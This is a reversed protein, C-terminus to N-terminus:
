FKNSLVVKETFVVGKEDVAKLVYNGSSLTSPLDISQTGSGGAHQLKTQMVVSGQTNVLQITYNGKSSVGSIKM